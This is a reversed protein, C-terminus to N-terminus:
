AEKATWPHGTSAAIVSIEETSVFGSPEFSDGPGLRISPQGVVATATFNVWMEEAPDVNQIFLYTRDVNIAMMVDAAAGAALTGSQDTLTGSRVGAAVIMKGSADVEIKRVQGSGSEFGAILTVGDSAVFTAGDEHSAVGHWSADPEVSGQTRSGVAIKLRTTGDSAYLTDVSQGINNVVSAPQAM